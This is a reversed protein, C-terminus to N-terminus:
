YTTLLIERCHFKIRCGRCPLVQVKIAFGALCNPRGHLIKDTLLCHFCDIELSIFILSEFNAYCSWVKVSGEGSRRTSTDQRYSFEFQM